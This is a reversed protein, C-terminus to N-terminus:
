DRLDLLHGLRDRKTRLYDFNEHNPHVQLPVREVVAISSGEFGSVKGPNNTLLRVSNVGLDELIAVAADYDRQDPEFGLELNAEVTDLGNDQLEYARLKDVLGIGRGEQRLYILIGAGETQITRLAAHLQEGCDCRMSFFVDGTLCESHVRVLVAKRHGVEGEALALHVGGNDGDEYGYLRFTGLRTPLRTQIIRNVM